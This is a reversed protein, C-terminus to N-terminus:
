QKFLVIKQERKRETKKEQNLKNKSKKTFDARELNIPDFNGEKLKKIEMKLQVITLNLDENEKLLSISDENGWDLFFTM